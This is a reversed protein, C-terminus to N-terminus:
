ILRFPIKRDRKREKTEKKEALCFTTERIDRKKCNRIFLVNM